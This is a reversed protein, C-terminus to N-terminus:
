YVSKHTVEYGPDALAPEPKQSLRREKFGEIRRLTRM